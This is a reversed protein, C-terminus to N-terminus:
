MLVESCLLDFTLIQWLDLIILVIINTQLPLWTKDFLQAKQILFSRLLLIYWCTLIVIMEIWFSCFVYADFAVSRLSNTPLDGKTLVISNPPFQQLVTLAFDRVVVNSSHNCALYNTKQLAVLLMTTLHMKLCTEIRASVSRTAVKRCRFPSTWRASWTLTMLHPELLCTSSRRCGTLKAWIM